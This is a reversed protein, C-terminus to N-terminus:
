SIAELFAEIAAIALRKDAASVPCGQEWSLPKGYWALTYTWIM